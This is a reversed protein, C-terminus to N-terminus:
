FHQNVKKKTERPKKQSSKSAPPAKTSAKKAAPASPQTGVPKEAKMSAM